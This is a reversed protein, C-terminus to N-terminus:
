QYTSNMFSHREPVIGSETTSANPVVTLLMGMYDSDTDDDSVNGSGSVSGGGSEIFVKSLQLQTFWTICLIPFFSLLSHIVNSLNFSCFEDIPKTVELTTERRGGLITSIIHVGGM